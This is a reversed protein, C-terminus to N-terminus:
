SEVSQKRLRFAVAGAGALLLLMGMLALPASDAVGTSALTNTTSTPTTPTTPPNTGPPTVPAVVSFNIKVADSIVDNISQTATVTYAGVALQSMVVQWTGDAGVVVQGSVLAGAGAAEIFVTAGPIGTGSVTPTSNDTSTGTMPSVIVPADVPAAVTVTASGPIDITAVKQTVVVATKGYQNAKVSATWNGDADATATAVAAGGVTLTITADPTATGTIKVDAGGVVAAGDVPTAIVIPETILPEAAGSLAYNGLSGYDTYGNSNVPTALNPNGAGVGDVSLYYVGAPVTATVTAGLGAAEVASVRTTEPADEAILAGNADTLTLKTDLNPLINAVDVSATFEGGATIVSFVDVDDTREIVGTAAFTGDANDLGTADTGGNGVQDAAYDARDMYTLRATLPAGTGDCLGAANPVYFADGAKPNNVDADGVECVRTGEYLQGDPTSLSVIAAKAASRDTIVALDDQLELAGAYGGNSWQSVPVDFTTGMLPGWVGETPFYYEGTTSGEIGDHKLGFNHGAEHSAVGAIAAATVDAGGAGVTFVLAGIQYDSGTGGLFALGSTGDADPLTEDYSDTIIVHSGYQNDDISNKVLADTGPDTTTVNVNFPAFDEAVGAWVDAVFSPNAGVAAPAFNLTPNGAVDNWQTGQLTQGNFDLYVTVPAGPRSGNAADGPIAAGVPAAPLDVSSLAGQAAVVGDIHLVFGNDMVKVAGTAELEKVETVTSDTYSAALEYKTSDSNISVPESPTENATAPLVAGGLTM